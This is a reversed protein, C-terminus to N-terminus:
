KDMIFLTAFYAPAISTQLGQYGGLICANSPIWLGPESYAVERGTSVTPPMNITIIRAILLSITPSGSPALSTGLTISEISKVGSDNAELAFWVITGIVATAPIMLGAANSLFATRGGTGASNTYSITSNYIAAANTTAVTVLLGIRCGEGKTDGNDDRAPLTPTTIAQAGTTTPVLGSNVWLVDYFWFSNLYQSWFEIRTLYRRYGTAVIPLPVCGGDNTADLGDTIRGDVGPTGPSWPGFTGNDKSWCYHYYQADTAGLAKKIPIVYSTGQRLYEYTQRLRGFEDHITFGNEPTYM